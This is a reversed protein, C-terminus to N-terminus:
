VSGASIELFRFFPLFFGLFGLLRGVYEGGGSSAEGFCEVMPDLSEERVDFVPPIAFVHGNVIWVFMQDESGFDMPLSRDLGDMLLLRSAVDYNMRGRCTYLREGIETPKCIPIQVSIPQVSWSPLEQQLTTLSYVYIPLHPPHSLHAPTGISMTPNINPNALPPPTLSPPTQTTHCLPTNKNASTLSVPRPHPLVKHGKLVNFSISTKSSVNCFTRFYHAYM